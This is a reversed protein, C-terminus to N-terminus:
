ETFYEIIKQNVYAWGKWGLHMVDCYFYPTYEYDKLNLVDMGYENAVSEVKNYYEDRREKSYGCHDYYPGNTSMIVIYPHINLEDCVSLFFNYDNWEKSVMLPIDKGSDKRGDINNELYKTFYEDYVYWENNTCADKGEKEATTYIDEWNINKVGYENSDIQKLFKYVSYKDKLCMYSYKVHYYPKMCSYAIKGKLSDSNYLRALIYTDPFIINGEVIYPNLVTKYIKFINLIRHKMKNDSINKDIENEVNIEKYNETEIFRRCLYKKNKESIDPNNLFEYFQLESFNSLTGDTSRENGAFWQLSEVIVIDNGNITKNNAGIDIAHLYNQVYAHGVCSVNNNYFNNPFMAQPKEPVPSGLESSGMMLLDNRKMAADILVNGKDKVSLGVCRDAVDGKEIYLQKIQRDLYASYIFVVTYLIVIVGIIYLVIKFIKNKM